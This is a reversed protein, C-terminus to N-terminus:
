IKRTAFITVTNVGVVTKVFVKSVKFLDHNISGQTGILIVNNSASNLKVNVDAGTGASIAFSTFENGFDVEQEVTTLAIDFSVYDDHPVGIPKGNEDIPIIGKAM